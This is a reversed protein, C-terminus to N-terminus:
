AEGGHDRRNAADLVTGTCAEHEAEIMALNGLASVAVIIPPIEDVPLVCCNWFGKAKVWAVGSKGIRHTLPDSFSRMLDFVKRAQHKWIRLTRGGSLQIDLMPDDRFVMGGLDLLYHSEGIRCRNRDISAAADSGHRAAIDALVEDQLEPPVAHTVTGKGWSSTFVLCLWGSIM